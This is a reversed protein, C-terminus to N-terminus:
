REVGAIRGFSYSRGEYAIADSPSVNESRALASSRELSAAERLLLRAIETM